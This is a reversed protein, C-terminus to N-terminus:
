RKIQSFVSGATPSRTPLLTPFVTTGTPPPTPFVIDSIDRSLSCAVKVNNWHYCHDVLLELKTKACLMCRAKALMKKELAPLADRFPTYDSCIDNLKM